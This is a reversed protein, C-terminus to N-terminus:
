FIAMIIPVVKDMLKAVVIIHMDMFLFIPFTLM